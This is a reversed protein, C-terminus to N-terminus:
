GTAAAATQRLSLAWKVATLVVLASYVFNATEFTLVAQVHLMRMLSVAGDLVTHLLVALIAYRWVHRKELGYAIFLTSGIHFLTASVREWVPVLLMTGTILPARFAGLSVFVVEMVAFGTGFLVAHPVWRRSRRGYLWLFLLKMGEQALGAAFGYYLAEPASFPVLHRVGAVGHIAIAVPAVLLNQAAGAVLFAAMGLGFAQWSIQRGLGDDAHFAAQFWRNLVLGAGLAAVGAAALFAAGFSM